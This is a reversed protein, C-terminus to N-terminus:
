VWNWALDNTMVPVRLGAICEALTKAVFETNLGIRGRVELSQTQLSCIREELRQRAGNSPDVLRPSESCRCM